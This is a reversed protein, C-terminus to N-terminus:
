PATFDFLASGLISDISYVSVALPRQNKHSISLWHLLRGKKAYAFSFFRM